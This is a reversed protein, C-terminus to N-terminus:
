DRLSRPVHHRALCQRRLVQRPWQGRTPAAEYGPVVVKDDWYADLARFYDKLRPGIRAPDVRAAAVLNSFQVGQLWIYDPKREKLSRFYVGTRPDFFTKQIHETVERARRDYPVPEEAGAAGVFSLAAVAAALAKRM